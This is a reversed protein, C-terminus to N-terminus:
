FTEKVYAMMEEIAKLDEQRGAEISVFKEYGCAKLLASIEKHIDREEIAKLGPESIHVHNIYRERGKLLDPSENNEIMTGLDLNLAFGKSDVREILDLAEKSSNIYNTNYIPPNAEMGIVTGKSAAYDGLEKFFAVATNEDAGEPMNRNRPCGFVLNKCGIESAFNVAKRSYDMLIKREEDSGFLKENKGYWISQMSPIRFGREMFLKKSWEEADKLRDYPKEPFIRTPAIELGEFGYKNMLDYVAEDNEATWGINSISLKM